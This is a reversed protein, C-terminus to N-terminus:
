QEAIFHVVEGAVNLDSDAGLRFGDALPTIGNSTAFAIAGGTDKLMAADAMSETWTAKCIGTVNYLHVVKPRWCVTKIDIAAGTGVFAGRHALRVGSSM